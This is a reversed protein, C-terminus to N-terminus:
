KVVLTVSGIVTGTPSYFEIVRSGDKWLESSGQPYGPFTVTFTTANVKTFNHFLESNPAGTSARADLGTCGNNVVATITISTALVGVNVAAKGNGNPDTNRQSALSMTASSLVCPVITTTTTSSSSTTTTGGLVTTTTGAPVTTTTAVTTTALVTTVAAFGPDATTPPLTHAPNKPASDVHMIDGQATQVDFTVLEVDGTEDYTIEVRAPLQGVAWNSPMHLLPGSANIVSTNGWPGAGTGWCFVRQIIEQKGTNVWRYNATYYATTGGSFESWQMRLINKGPSSACNTAVNPDQNFGNPPTSDVDQPLWTVVGKLTHAVDTRIEAMPNNKFAVTVVAAVVTAILGMVAISVVLEILTFGRDARARLRSRRTM